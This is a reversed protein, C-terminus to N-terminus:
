KQVRDEELLRQLAQAADYAGFPTWVPYLAGDQVIDVGAEETLDSAMLRLVQLKEDRPLGKLTPILEAISM